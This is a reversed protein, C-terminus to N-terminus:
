MLRDAFGFYPKVIIPGPASSLACVSVVLRFGSKALCVLM